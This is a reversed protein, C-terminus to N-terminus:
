CFEDFFCVLIPTLKNKKM